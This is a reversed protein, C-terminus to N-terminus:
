VSREPVHREMREVLTADVADVYHAWRWRKTKENYVAKVNVSLYSKGNVSYVPPRIVVAHHSPWSVWDGAQFDHQTMNTSM